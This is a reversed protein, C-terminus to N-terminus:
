IGDQRFVNWIQNFICRKKHKNGFLKETVLINGNHDMLNFTGNLNDLHNRDEKPFNELGDILTGGVLAKLQASMLFHTATFILCIIIKKM